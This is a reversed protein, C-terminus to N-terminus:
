FWGLGSPEVCHLMGAVDALMAEQEEVTIGNVKANERIAWRNYCDAYEDTYGPIKDLLHDVWRTQWMVKALVKGIMDMMRDPSFM